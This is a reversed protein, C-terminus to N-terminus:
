AIKPQGNSASLGGDVPLITGTIFGAEDSALFAIAKAIDNPEGAREMAIRNEFIPMLDQNNIVFSTMETDTLTPAVANIRVNKPALDLALGKTMLNLAGKTADYAFAGWDGGLGSVSSVNVINGQHKELYPLCAKILLFPGTTNVAFQHNWDSLSIDEITGGMFVAANNVVVDLRNFTSVTQQVITEIDESSSMDATIVLSNETGIENAVKQLKDATRGVLVVKFGDEAFRLATAKGIGSGAGTVIVVKNKGSM